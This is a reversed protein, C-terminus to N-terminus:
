DHLLGEDIESDSEEMELAKERAKRVRKKTRAGWVKREIEEDSDVEVIRKSQNALLSETTSAEVPRAHDAEQLKGGLKQLYPRLLLYGGIIIIIRIVKQPNEILDAFSAYLGEFM